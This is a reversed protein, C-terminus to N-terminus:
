LSDISCMQLFESVDEAHVAFSEDGGLPTSSDEGHYDTGGTLALDLGCATNRLHETMARDHGPYYVEVGQMGRDALGAVLASLERHTRPMLGPHALVPIGGVDRILDIASGAYLRRREVYAPKGRALFRDFAERQSGVYGRNVMVQAIHPRGIVGEGAARAVEPEPVHMGLGALRELIRPNRRYRAQRVGELAKGLSSSPSLLRELDAQPFYGLLHASGGAELDVSLEVAPIVPLGLSKGARCADSVGDLTDHDSVSLVGLGGAAAMEVLRAPRHAGDSATSHTHLDVRTM